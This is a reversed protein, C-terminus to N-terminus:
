TSPSVYRLMIGSRATPMGVELGGFLKKMQLLHLMTSTVHLIANGIMPPLHIVVTIVHGMREDDMDVIGDVSDNEQIQSM